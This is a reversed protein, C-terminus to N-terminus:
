TTGPPPPPSTAERPRGRLAFMAWGAIAVVLLVGIIVYFLLSSGAVETPGGSSPQNKVFEIYLDIASGNVIWTGNAPAATYGGVTNVTYPYTGNALTVSLSAGTSTSAGSALTVGWVTGSPLGSEFVTIKSTFPVFTVTINQAVGSVTVQGSEPMARYGPEPGVTYNYTGNTLYASYTSDGGFFMGGNVDLSWAMGSPIGSPTFSVEYTPVAFAVHVTLMGVGLEGSGSPPSAAYNGVNPISYEYPTIVGESAAVTLSTSNTRYTTGNFDVNWTSGAPLGTELFTAMHDAWPTMLPYRDIDTPDLVFPTDGIGDSGSINQGPGHFLDKGTYNSWYNGGAPYGDDWALPPTDTLQWSQDSLFDNHYTLLSVSGDVAMSVADDLFENGVVTGESAGSVALAESDDPLANASVSFGEATSLDIAMNGSENSFVNGELLLGTVSTASLGGDSDADASNNVIAWDYGGNLFFANGDADLSNGSAEFGNVNSLFIATEEEDDFDNSDVRLDTGGTVALGDGRVEGFNSGSVTLNTVGQGNLGEGSDNFFDCTGVDVQQDTDLAIASDGSSNSFDSDLIDIGNSDNAVFPSQTWEFLDDTFTSSNVDLESVAGPGLDTPTGAFDTSTVTLGQVFSAFLATAASREASDRDFSIDSVNSLYIAQLQARDIESNSVSVDTTGDTLVVPFNSRNLDSDQVSISSSQVAVLGDNGQTLNSATISLGSADDAYVSTSGSEFQSDVIVVNSSDVDWVGTGGDNFAVASLTVGSDGDLYVGFQAPSLSSSDGVSVQESNLITYSINTAASLLNSWLSVDVSEEVIVPTAVGEIGTLNNSSINAVSVSTLEVAEGSQEDNFRNRDVTLGTSQLVHLGIGVAHSFDDDTVTLGTCLTVGLGDGTSRTFDSGLLEVDNSVAVIVPGTGAADVGSVTVSVSNDIEVSSGTVSINTDVVDTFLSDAVYVGIGSGTINFGSITVNAADLVLVGASDANHDVDFGAGVLTSGNRYDGIGGTYDTLLTYTNGQVSFVGPVSVSGNPDIELTASFDLQLPAESDRPALTAGLGSLLLAAVVVLSLVVAGSHGAFSRAAM